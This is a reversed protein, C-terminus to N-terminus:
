EWGEGCGIWAAWLASWGASITGTTAWAERIAPPALHSTSRTAGFLGYFWGRFRPPQLRYVRVALIPATVGLIYRLFRM